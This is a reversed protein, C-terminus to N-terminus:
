KRRIEEMIAMYVVIPASLNWKDQNRVLFRMVAAEVVGYKLVPSAEGWISPFSNVDAGTLRSNKARNLKDGYVLGDYVAVIYMLRSYEPMHYLEEGTIEKSLVVSPSGVLLCLLVVQVSRIM